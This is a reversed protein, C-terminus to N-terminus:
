AISEAIMPNALLPQISYRAVESVTRLPVSPAARIVIQEVMRGAPSIALNKEMARESVAMTGNTDAGSNVYM